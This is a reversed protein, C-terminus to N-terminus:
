CSKVVKYYFPKFNWWFWDLNTIM